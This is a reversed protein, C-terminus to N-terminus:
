LFPTEKFNLLDNLLFICENLAYFWLMNVKKAHNLLWPKCIRSRATLKLALM